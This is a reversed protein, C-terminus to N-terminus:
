DAGILRPVESHEGLVHWTRDHYVLPHSDGGPELDDEAIHVDLAHVVVVTATGAGLANVIRGRIWNRPGLFRPEGSTLRTWTTTDAFRDVGSTACLRALRLQDAELLHIVVTDAGLITPTSSSLESVSFVILPPEASVSVVSPLIRGDCNPGVSAVIATYAGDSAPGVTSHVRTRAGQPTM